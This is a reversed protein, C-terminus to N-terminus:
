NMFQKLQKKILPDMYNATGAIVFVGVQYDDGKRYIEFYTLNTGAGYDALVYKNKGIRM